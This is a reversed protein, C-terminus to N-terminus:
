AHVMVLRVTHAQGYLSWAVRVEVTKLGAVPVNNTVTWTRAYGAGAM